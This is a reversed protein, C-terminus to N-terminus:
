SVVVLLLVLLATMEVEVVLNVHCIQMEMHYAVALVVAMTVVLGVKEVMAAVVGLAMAGFMEEALEVQVAQEFFFHDFEVWCFFLLVANLSQEKENEEVHCISRVSNM